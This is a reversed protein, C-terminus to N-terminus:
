EVRRGDDGSRCHITKKKGGNAGRISTKKIITFIRQIVAFQLLSLLIASANFQFQVSFSSFYTQLKKM